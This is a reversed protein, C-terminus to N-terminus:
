QQPDSTDEKLKRVGNQFLYSALRASDEHSVCGDHHQIEDWLLYLPEYDEPKMEALLIAEDIDPNEGTLYSVLVFHHKAKRDILDFFPLILDKAEDLINEELDEKKM